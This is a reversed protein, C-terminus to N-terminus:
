ATESLPGAAIGLSVMGPYTSKLWRRPGMSKVPYRWLGVVRGVHGGNRSGRMPVDERSLRGQWRAGADLTVSESGSCRREVSPSRQRHPARLYRACCVLFRTCRDLKRSGPTVTM